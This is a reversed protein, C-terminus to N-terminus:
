GGGTSGDAQQRAGLAEQEAPIRVAMLLANLLSFVGATRRAGLAFPLLAIEAAVITYNPHRLWRFPGDTVVPEDAVVLIRTTWRDGLSRIVWYRLPQVVGYAVLAGPHSRRTVSSEIATAALWGAHLAVMSPYHGAGHEVAGRARLRRENRGAWAVEGIRQVAVLALVTRATRNM